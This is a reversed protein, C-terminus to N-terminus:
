YNHLRAGPHKAKFERIKRERESESESAGSSPPLIRPQDARGSSLGGAPWLREKRVWNLWSSFWNLKLGDKGPKSSWYSVFSAAATAVQEATLEPRIKRAELLWSESLRYDAPLRTGRETQNERIKERTEGDEEPLVDRQWGGGVFNRERAPLSLQSPASPSPKAAPLAERERTKKENKEQNKQQNKQQNKEIADLFGSDLSGSDLSGSDLFGVETKGPDPFGVETQPEDYVM